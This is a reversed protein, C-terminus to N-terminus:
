AAVAKIVAFNFVPQETTTGGTTYFTVQFSGAAVATVFVLYKDAGSKQSIVVVDTATVASNTVTFTAPTTSGAASVLTIAGSVNNLTVGTTRSTAQTVAGGAGTAYGVGSTAGSSLITTTAAVSGTVDVTAVPATVGGFRSNGAFANNATGGAYFNWRATGAPINGYFGFNSNAGTFNANVFYGYQNTIASTAGISGQIVNSYILTPVTFAAASTSFSLYQGYAVTTVGSQITQSQLLGYATAAGTISNGFRVSIATLGSSGIGVNGASDIRFREVGNTSAAITDAAPFWFGTNSDGTPAISPTGASGAAANALAFNTVQSLSSKVPGVGPTQVSPFVDTGAVSVAATLGSIATNAM